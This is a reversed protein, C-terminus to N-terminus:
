RFHNSCLALIGRTDQSPNVQQSPLVPIQNLRADRVLAERMELAGKLNSWTTTVKSKKYIPEPINPDIYAYFANKLRFTYINICSSLKDYSLNFFEAPTLRNQIYNIYDRSRGSIRNYEIGGTCDTFDGNERGTLYIPHLIDLM